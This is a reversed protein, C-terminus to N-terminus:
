GRTTGTPATRAAIGASPRASVPHIRDQTRRPDLAPALTQLEPEQRPVLYFSSGTRTMGPVGPKATEARGINTFFLDTESM